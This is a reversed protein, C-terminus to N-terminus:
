ASESKPDRAGFSVSHHVSIHLTAQIIRKMITDNQGNLHRWNLQKM